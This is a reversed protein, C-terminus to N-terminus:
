WARHNLRDRSLSPIVIASVQDTLARTCVDFANAPPPQVAASTLGLELPFWSSGDAMFQAGVDQTSNPALTFQRVLTRAAPDAIRGIETSAADGAFWITVTDPGNVPTVYLNVTQPSDLPNKLHLIVNRLVGFDGHLAPYDASLQLLEGEGSGSGAPLASENSQGAAYTLVLPKVTALEYEGRRQHGDDGELKGALLLRPDADGSASVVSVRVPDGAVVAIDYIGTVLTKAPMARANLRLVEPADPMLHVRIGEHLARRALYAITATHGVCHYDGYPGVAAGTLQVDSQQGLTSVIVYMSRGADVAAHYAYLRAPHRADIPQTSRFLVGDAGVSEPDDSYLLTAPESGSVFDNAIVHLTTQGTVTAANPGRLRVDIRQTALTPDLASIAPFELVCATCLHVLPRLEVRLRGALFERAPTGAVTVSVDSPIVGAPAVVHVLITDTNGHPDTGTITVDGLTASAVLTVARTTADFRADVGASSAVLTIASAGYLHVVASAGQGLVLEHRDFAARPQPSGSALPPASPAPLVAPSQAFAPTLCTLAACACLAFRALAKRRVACGFTM